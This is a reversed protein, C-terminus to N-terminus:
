VLIIQMIYVSQLVAFRKKQSIHYIEIETEHLTSTIASHHKKSLLNM